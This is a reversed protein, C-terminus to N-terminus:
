SFAQIGTIERGLILAQVSDTGEVTVVAEMDAHHRAVDYELLIGNAGLLDRADGVVTRAHAANFMKALAAIAATLKGEAQLQSMRVCILQMATVDALMNALRYQVLQAGALPRGFQERETAHRVAAEYAAVAHGLAGWAVAPRCKTLVDTADEFSLAGPLRNRAPVRVGDLTIDAQWSARKATKGTILEATFGPTGKEVVFAGVDDNEGRAWVIVIDAFSANGIWRKAGHLLYGEADAVARTELAVVDSGHDPETLAFSGIMELRAMAPLWREKQADSGLQAISTMALGSQVGHFTALSGDCRAIEHAVLGAALPSLGPCGYGEITGGIVGLEALGPLLEFPFQAREWHDNVIPAVERECFARVRDRVTREEHSLLDEILFLDAGSATARAEAGSDTM